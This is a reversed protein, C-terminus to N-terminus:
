IKMRMGESGEFKGAAAKMVGNKTFIDSALKPGASADPDDALAYFHSVLKRADASIVTSPWSTNQIADTMVDLELQLLRDFLL